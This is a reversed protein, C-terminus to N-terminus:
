GEPSRLVREYRGGATTVTLTAVWPAGTTRVTAFAQAAGPRVSVEGVNRTRNGGGTEIALEYRADVAVPSEGVVQFTTHQPGQEVALRVPEGAGAVAALALAAATFDPM